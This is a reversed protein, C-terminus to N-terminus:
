KERRITKITVDEKPWDSMGNKTGTSKQRIANVVDMGSTVKGFVAYGPNGGSYNLFDNQAVNIFFQATASNPANTRAMALTGINNKLGNQSELMIPDKTSKQTGDKSFGGGQIMFNSIVRHFVTGDYHGDDVYTLFNKVTVPASNVDLEVTIDGESTEIVVYEMKKLDPAMEEELETTTQDVRTQTEPQDANLEQEPTPANCGMLILTAGILM